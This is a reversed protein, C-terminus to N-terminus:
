LTRLMDVLRDLEEKSYYEIEIKGKNNRNKINVKSGLAQKLSEEINAFLYEQIKDEEKPTEKKKKSMQKVLKEIERVSLKEDFVKMATEYQQDPDDIALLARAHGTTIM